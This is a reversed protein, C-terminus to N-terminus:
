FLYQNPSGHKTMRSRSQKCDHQMAAQCLAWSVGPATLCGVMNPPIAISANPSLTFMSAYQGVEEHSIYNAILENVLTVADIAKQNVVCCPM